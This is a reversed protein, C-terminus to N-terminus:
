KTGFIERIQAHSQGATLGDLVDLLPAYLLNRGPEFYNGQVIAPAPDTRVARRSETRRCAAIQRDGGGRASTLRPVGPDRAVDNM